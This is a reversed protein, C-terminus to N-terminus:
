DAAEERHKMGTYNTITIDGIPGYLPHDTCDFKLMGNEEKLPIRHLYRCRDDSDTMYIATIRPTGDEKLEADVGWVSLSHTYQNGDHRYYEVGVWFADGRRFGDYLAQSVTLNNVQSGRMRYLLNWIFREGDGRYDQYYGGTTDTTVAACAEGTAPTMPEYKGSFWWRLGQDPDSGENTFSNKVVEWVEDGMPINPPLDQEERANQWWAILNSACIAWCLESQAGNRAKNFDYWGSEQSVGTAWYTEATAWSGLMLGACGLLTGIKM